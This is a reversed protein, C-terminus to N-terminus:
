ESEKPHFVMCRVEISERADQHEEQKNTFACHPVARARGDEKSDYCKFMIVESPQQGYLYYWQHTERGREAGPKVTFTAGERAPYILKVPVLDEDPVTRADAVALPDKYIPKIPRWVNIIQYRGSLLEEAEHPLHRYVDWPASLYTQDIHVRRVPGQVNKINNGM